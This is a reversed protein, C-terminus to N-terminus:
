HRSVVEMMEMMGPLYWMRGDDGPKEAQLTKRTARCPTPFMIAAVATIAFSLHPRSIGESSLTRHALVAVVTSQSTQRQRPKVTGGLEAQYTESYVNGPGTPFISHLRTIKFIVINPKAKFRDNRRWSNYCNTHYTKCTFFSAMSSYNVQCTMSLCDTRRMQFLKALDTTTHVHVFVHYREWFFLHHATLRHSHAGCFFSDCHKPGLRSVLCRLTTLQPM